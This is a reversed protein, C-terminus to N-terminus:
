GEIGEVVFEGTRKRANQWLQLVASWEGEGGVKVRVDNVVFVSGLAKPVVASIRGRVNFGVAQTVKTIFAEFDLEDISAPTTSPPLLQSTHIAAGTTSNVVRVLFATPHLTFISTNFATRIPLLQQSYNNPPPAQVPTNDQQPAQM